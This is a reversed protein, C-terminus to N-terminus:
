ARPFDGRRRLVAIAHNVGVILAAVEPVLGGFAIETHSRLWSVGLRALLYTTGILAVGKLVGSM